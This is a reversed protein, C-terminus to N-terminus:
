SGTTTRTGATDAAALTLGEPVATLPGGADGANVTDEPEVLLVNVDGDAVPRHEVGKRFSTCSRDARWRTRVHHSTAGITWFTRWCAMVHPCVRAPLREHLDVVGAM